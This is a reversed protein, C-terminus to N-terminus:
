VGLLRRLVGFVITSLQTYVRPFVIM